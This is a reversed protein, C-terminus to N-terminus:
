KATAGNNEFVNARYWRYTLAIGEDLGVEGQVGTIDALL